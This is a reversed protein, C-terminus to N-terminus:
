VFLQSFSFFGAGKITLVTAKLICKQSYFFLCHQRFIFVNLRKGKIYGYSFWNYDLFYFIFYIFIVLLYIFISFFHTLPQM